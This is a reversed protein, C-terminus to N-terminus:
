SIVFKGPGRFEVVNMKVALQVIGKAKREGWTQYVGSVFDGFTLPRRPHPKIKSSDDVNMGYTFGSFGYKNRNIKFPAKM